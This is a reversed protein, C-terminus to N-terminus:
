AAVPLTWAVGMCPPLVAVRSARAPSLGARVSRAAKGRRLLAPYNVIAVLLLITVNLQIRLGDDM